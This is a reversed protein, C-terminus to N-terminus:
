EEDSILYSSPEPSHYENSQRQNKNTWPPISGQKKNLKDFDVNVNTDLEYVPKQSLKFVEDSQSVYRNHSKNVQTPFIIDEHTKINPIQQPIDNTVNFQESKDNLWDHANQNSDPVYGVKTGKPSKIDSINHQNVMPSNVAYTKSNNNNIYTINTNSNDNQNITQNLTKNQQVITNIENLILPKIDQDKLIENTLQIEKLRIFVFDYVFYILVLGMFIFYIIQQPYIHPIFSIIFSLYTLYISFLILQLVRTFGQDYYFKWKYIEPHEKRYKRSRLYRSWLTTSFLFSFVLLMGSLVFTSNFFHPINNITITPLDWIIASNFPNLISFGVGKSSYLLILTFYVLMGITWLTMGIAWGLSTHTVLLKKGTQNIQKMEQSSYNNAIQKYIDKILNM